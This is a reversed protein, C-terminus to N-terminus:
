QKEPSRYPGHAEEKNLIKQLNLTQAFGTM